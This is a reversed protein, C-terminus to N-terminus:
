PNEAPKEVPKSAAFVPAALALAAFFLAPKM